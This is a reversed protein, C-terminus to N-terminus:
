GDEGGPWKMFVPRMSNYQCWTQGAHTARCVSTLVGHQRPGSPKILIAETGAQTHREGERAEGDYERGRRDVVEGWLYRGNM